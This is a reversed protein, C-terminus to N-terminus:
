SSLFLPSLRVKVGCLVDTNYDSCFLTTCAKGLIVNTDGKNVNLVVSKINENEHLLSDILSQPKPITEGNIVACVM